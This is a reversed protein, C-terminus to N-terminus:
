KTFNLDIEPIEGFERPSTTRIEECKFGEVLIMGNTNKCALRGGAILASRGVLAVMVLVAICLLCIGINYAITQKMINDYM